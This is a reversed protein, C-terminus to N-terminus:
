DALVYYTCDPVSVSWHEKGTKLDLAFVRCEKACGVVVTEGLILLDADRYSAQSQISWLLDGANARWAAVGSHGRAIVIDNTAAFRVQEGRPPYIYGPPTQQPIIDGLSATWVIEGTKRRLAYLTEWASTVVLSENVAPAYRSFQRVQPFGITEADFEWLLRQAKLDIAGFHRYRTAGYLVGDVLAGSGHGDTDEYTGPNKATPIIGRRQGSALDVVAWHGDNEHTHAFKEENIKYHVLGDFVYPRTVGEDEGLWTDIKWLVDGNHRDVCYLHQRACVLIHDGAIVPYTGYTGYGGGQSFEHFRSGSGLDV